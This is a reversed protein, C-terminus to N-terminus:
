DPNTRALTHCDRYGQMLSEWNLRHRRSGLIGVPDHSWSALEESTEVLRAIDEDLYDLMATHRPALAPKGASLFEMLPLCLGEANSANIYFDTLTILERYKDDDLFGHLAVVRCQLDSSRRTPFSHLDRLAGSSQLVVTPLQ